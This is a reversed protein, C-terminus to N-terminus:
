RDEVTRVAENMRDLFAHMLEVLSYYKQGSSYLSIGNPGNTTQVGLRMALDDLGQIGGFKGNLADQGAPLWYVDGHNLPEDGTPYSQVSRHDSAIESRMAHESFGELEDDFSRRNTM